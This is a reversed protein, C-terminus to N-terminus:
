GLSIICLLFIEERCEDFSPPCSLFILEWSGLAFLKEGSLVFTGRTKVGIAKRIGDGADTMEDCIGQEWPCSWRCALRGISFIDIAFRSVEQSKRPTWQGLVDDNFRYISIKGRRRRGTWRLAEQWVTSPYPYPRSLLLDLLCMYSLILALCYPVFTLALCFENM